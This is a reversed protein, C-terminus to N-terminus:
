RKNLPNSANLATTTACTKEWM